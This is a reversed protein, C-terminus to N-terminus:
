FLSEPMPTKRHIITLRESCKKPFVYGTQESVWEQAIDANEVFHNCFTLMPWFFTLQEVGRHQIEVINSKLILGLKKMSSKLRLFQHCYKLKSLSTIVSSNTVKYRLSYCNKISHVSTTHIKQTINIPRQLRVEFVNFNEHGRTSKECTKMIKCIVHWEQFLKEPM